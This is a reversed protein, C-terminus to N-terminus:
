IRSFIEIIDFENLNFKLGAKIRTTKYENFTNRYVYAFKFTNYLDKHIKLALDGVTSGRKIVMPEDAVGKKSKTFIKILNLKELIIEGFDKLGKRVEEGTETNKISVPIIPFPIQSNPGYEKNLLTFNEQTNALDAKTAIIIAAKFKTSPNFAREIDDVTIADYIKIISNKSGSAIAMEKIFESLDESKKAEKSQFFIQTGGMGVREIKLRPPPSNLYINSEQLISILNKMQSLPDKSLDIFLSIIDTTRIGNIIKNLNGCEHLAPEEVLQFKIGDWDFIGILPEATFLGPTGDKLRTLNKLLTTKGVGMGQDMFDSIMMVQITHPEHKITFADESSAILKKLRLNNTEREAKLKSLRSKNLAVIKETAKHKPVQSLFLELKAIREDLSKADLYDQYALKAELTLNSSIKFM